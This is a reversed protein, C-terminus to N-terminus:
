LNNDGNGQSWECMLQRHRLQRKKLYYNAKEANEDNNFEHSEWKDAPIGPPTQKLLILDARTALMESEDLGNFYGQM